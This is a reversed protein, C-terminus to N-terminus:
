DREDSGSLLTAALTYDPRDAGVPGAPARPPSFLELYDDQLIGDACVAVVGAISRQEQVETVQVWGATHM